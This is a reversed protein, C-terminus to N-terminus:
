ASRGRRREQTQYMRDEIAKDIIRHVLQDMRAMKVRRMFQVPGMESFLKGVFEDAYSSAIVQIGDWDLIVPKEPEAALLNQVKTKMQAGASRNGFGFTEVHMPVHLASLDDRLYKDEIVDRPQYTTNPDGAIMQGVDVDVDLRMQLDVLTGPLANQGSSKVLPREAEWLIRGRHSRIEFRGGFGMALRLSGKLGNGQGISPDRTVGQRLAYEIAEMDDRLHRFTSRLSKLMGQGIDVVCLAVRDPLVAMQVYGGEASDAHNLVNDTVENLTWELANLAARRILTAQMLRDIVDKVVRHQTAADGFQVVALHRDSLSDTRPHDGPSLFHSWNTSAFLRAEHPAVPPRYTCVVNARRLWAAAAIVPLIANPFTRVTASFDLCLGSAGSDEFAWLANVFSDIQGPLFESPFVLAGDRFQVGFTSPIPSM